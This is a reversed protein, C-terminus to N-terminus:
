GTCSSMGTISTSSALISSQPGVATPRLRAWVARSAARAAVAGSDTNALSNSSASDITAAAPGRRKAALHAQAARREVGREGGERHPRQERGAEGRRRGDRVLARLLEQQERQEVDRELHTSRPRPGRARAPPRAARRARARQGSPRAAGSGPSRGASGGGTRTGRASCTAGGPHRHGHQHERRRPQSEDRGAGRSRSAHSGASTRGATAMTAAARRCGAPLGDGGPQEHEPSTRSLPPSAAAPRRQPARRRLGRQRQDHQREGGPREHDRLRAAHPDPRQEPQRHDGHQPCRPQERQDAAGHHTTSIARGGASVPRSVSLSALLARDSSCTAPPCRCPARCAPTRGPVRAHDQGGVRAVTPRLGRVRESRVQVVVRQLHGGLAAYGAEDEEQPPSAGHQEGGPALRPEAGRARPPWRLRRRRAPRRRPPRRDGPEDLVIEAVGFHQHEDQEQGGHGERERARAGGAGGAQLRESARACRGQERGHLPPAHEDDAVHHEVLEEPAADRADRGLSGNGTTSTVRWLKWRPPAPLTAAFTRESPPPAVSTAVTPSSAPPACTRSASAPAPTPERSTSDGAPRGVVTLVRM